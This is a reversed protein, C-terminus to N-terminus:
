SPLNESNQMPLYLFIAGVMFTFPLIILWKLLRHFHIHFSVSYDDQFTTGLEDRMEIHVTATVRSRPCPIELMYSGAESYSESMGIVPKNGMNMEEIGVGQLMVKVTYPGGTYPRKDIINFKVQFKQGMVDQPARSAADAYVGEWDFRSLQNNASQYQWSRLPHYDAPTEYAYLNGNMTSVLLDLKGNGTLDDALVMSYSVEGIDVTDSCGDLGDVVYLFGDFSQVMLNQQPADQLRTILVQSMIPGGTLFPFNNLDKGDTGRLAYIFGSKTAVAIDLVGDGDIDGFTPGQPIGGVLHREWVEKGQVNFVAINGRMDGAVIELKKDSNVDAVGVQGQIDGMQIPWGELTKGESNLVYLFGTSSGVIIELKGDGDVDALTPASYSYARYSIHDTTQDLQQEWKMIRRKLNFVVISNAIYKSIDIDPDLEKKREPNDYYDRDYLYTVAIVLEDDGDGDIDGIAPTCFVHSDVYVYKSDRNHYGQSFYYEDWYYDEDLHDWYDFDWDRYHDLDQHFEDFDIHAGSDDYHGDYHHFDYDRDYFDYDDDDDWLDVFSQQGEESLGEGQQEQLLHRQAGENEGEKEQQGVDPHEHDIHDQDLGEYWKKAIRLRPVYLRENMQEFNPGLAIMM